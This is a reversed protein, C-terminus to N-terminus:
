GSRAGARANRAAEALRPRDSRPLPGAARDTRSSASTGPSRRSTPSAVRGPRRRRAQAGRRRDGRAWDAAFGPTSSRRARAWCRTPSSPSSARAAAAYIPQRANTSMVNAAVIGKLVAIEAQTERPVVVDAGFRALSARRIRRARRACRRAPSAASSSAPSTRSAPSTAARQRGLRRDLRRPQRAPRLRRDARRPRARRRDVRVHSDVLEDHDVRAGLAPVDLYGSVIADEFDHVSYAIDDSLDMVQAEICRVRPRARGRAAVRLRRHRRRLLRVQQAREPRPHGRARAM